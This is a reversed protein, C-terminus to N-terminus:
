ARASLEVLQNYSNTLATKVGVTLAYMGDDLQQKTLGSYAPVAALDADTITEKLGGAENYLIDLQNLVPLLEELLRKSALMSKSVTDLGLKDLAM